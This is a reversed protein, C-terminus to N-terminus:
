NGLTKGPEELEDGRFRPILHVHLHPITNGHLECNIKIAGTIAQVIRSLNRLDRMLALSEQESLDHLEVVHRKAFLACYGKVPGRGTAVYCGSLEAVTGAPGGALCIPCAEGTRLREWAAPDHWSAM